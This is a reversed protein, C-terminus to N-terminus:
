IRFISRRMNHREDVNLYMLRHLLEIFSDSAVQINSTIARIYKLKVGNGECFFVPKKWPANVDANAQNGQAILFHFPDPRLSAQLNPACIGAKACILKSQQLKEAMADQLYNDVSEQTPYLLFGIIRDIMVDKSARRVALLDCLSGLAGVNARELQERRKRIEPHTGDFPIWQIECCKKKYTKRIFCFFYNDSEQNLTWQLNKLKLEVARKKKKESITEPDDNKDYIKRKRGRRNSSKADSVNIISKQEMKEVNNRDTLFPLTNSIGQELSNSVSTIETMQKFNEVEQKMTGNSNVNTIEQISLFELKNEPM